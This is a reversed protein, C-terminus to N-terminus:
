QPLPLCHLKSLIETEIQSASEHALQRLWDSVITIAPSSQQNEPRVLWYAHRLQVAHRSAIVLNGAALDRVVLATRTLAIGGGEKAAQILTGADNFRPGSLDKYSIGLASFWDPWGEHAVPHLLPQALLAAPELPLQKLLQPSCVPLLWDNMLREAQHNPWPGTGFRVALDLGSRALHEVERSASVSLEIEPHAILFSGLQPALWHAALSPLLTLGVHGHRNQRRLNEVGAALMSLSESVTQQFALGERTLSIKGAQRTFLTVGLEEELLRIARSVAGATVCLSEAARTFNLQQAAADFTEIARLSPLRRM